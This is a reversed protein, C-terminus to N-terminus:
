RFVVSIRWRWSSLASYYMGALFVSAVESLLIIRRLEIPLCYKIIEFKGALFNSWDSLLVSVNLWDSSSPFALLLDCARYLWNTRWWSLSRGAHASQQRWRWRRPRRRSQVHATHGRRCVCLRCALAAFFVRWFLAWSSPRQRRNQYFTLETSKLSVYVLSKKPNLRILRRAFRGLFGGQSEHLRRRERVHVFM